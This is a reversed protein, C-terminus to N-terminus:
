IFLNLLKSPLNPELIKKQKLYYLQMQFTKHIFSLKEIQYKKSSIGFDNIQHVWFSLFSWFVCTTHLHNERM